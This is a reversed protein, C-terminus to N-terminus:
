KGEQEKLYEKYLIRKIFASDGGVVGNKKVWEYLKQEEEANLKFNVTVRTQKTTSRLGQEWM